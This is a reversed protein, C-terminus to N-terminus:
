QQLLDKIEERFVDPPIIKSFLIISEYADINKDRVITLFGVTFYVVDQLTAQNDFLIKSIKKFGEAIEKMAEVM